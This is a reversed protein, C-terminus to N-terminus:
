LQAETNGSIQEQSKAADLLAPLSTNGKWGQSDHGPNIAASVTSDAPFLSNAGPHSEPLVRQRSKSQPVGTMMSYQAPFPAPPGMLRGQSM